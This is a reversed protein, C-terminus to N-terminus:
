QYKHISWFSNQSTFFFRCELCVRDWKRKKFADFSKIAFLFSYFNFLRIFFLFNWKSLFIGVSTIYCVYLPKIKPQPEPALARDTRELHETLGFVRFSKYQKIFFFSNIALQIGTLAVWFRTVSLGNSFKRFKVGITLCLAM